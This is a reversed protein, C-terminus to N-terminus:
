GSASKPAKPAMKNITQLASLRELEYIISVLSVVESDLDLNLVQMCTNFKPHAVTKLPQCHSIM